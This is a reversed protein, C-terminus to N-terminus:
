KKLHNKYYSFTKEYNKGLTFEKLIKKYGSEGFNKAKDPNQLLDTIKRALNKINYPNVIYGNVDDEIIEKSGGFCTAIVPKKCAFAELNITPFSDFCISPVEM